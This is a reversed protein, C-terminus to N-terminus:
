KLFDEEEEEEVEKKIVTDLEARLEKVQKELKTCRRENVCVCVATAVAFLAVNKNFKMQSRLTKAIATFAEDSKRLSGFIYSMMENM